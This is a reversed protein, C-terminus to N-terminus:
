DKEEASAAQWQRVREVDEPEISEKCDDAGRCPIFRQHTVCVVVMNEWTWTLWAYMSSDKRFERVSWPEDSYTFWVDLETATVEVRAVDRKEAFFAGWSGPEERTLIM